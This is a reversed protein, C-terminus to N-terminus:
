SSAALTLKERLKELARARHSMTDKYTGPMQAFTQEQGMPKFLPDYGFGSEGMAHTMITGEVRGEFTEVGGDPMALAIVCVFRAARGPGEPVDKLELLLKKWNESDTAGSNAYRASLVGPAGDLADVVLGSDDAITPLGTFAALARAKLIANGSFTDETEEVEPHGPFEELGRLRISLGGMIRAIEALKHRNTTAVVLSSISKM